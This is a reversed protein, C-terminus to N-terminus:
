KAGGSSNIEELFICEGPCSLAAALAPEILKRPVPMIAAVGVEDTTPQGNPGVLCAIGDELVVFLDPCQDVCLGAGTCQDPDIWVFLNSEAARNRM